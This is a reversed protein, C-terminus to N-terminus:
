IGKPLRFSVNFLIMMMMMMVKEMRQRAQKKFDENCNRGGYAERLRRLLRAM